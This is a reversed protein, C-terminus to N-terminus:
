VLGVVNVAASAGVKRIRIQQFPGFLVASFDSRGTASGTWVTATATVSVSNGSSDPATILLEVVVQDAASVSFNGMISRAQSPAFASDVPYWSSQTAATQNNLFAVANLRQMTM